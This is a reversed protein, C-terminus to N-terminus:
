DKSATTIQSGCTLSQPSKSKFFEEHNRFASAKEHQRITNQENHIFDPNPNPFGFALKLPNLKLLFHSYKGMQFYKKLLLVLLCLNYFITTNKYHVNSMDNALAARPKCPAKSQASRSRCWVRPKVLPALSPNQNSTRGSGDGCLGM